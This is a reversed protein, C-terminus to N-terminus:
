QVAKIFQIIVLGLSIVKTLFVLIDSRIGEKDGSENKHIQYISYIIKILGHFAGYTGLILCIFGLINFFLIKTIFFIIAWVAICFIGFWLDDFGKINSVPKLKLLETCLGIIGIVIFIWRIVQSVAQNNFYNPVFTLVLGVTIFSFGLTLGNIMSDIKISFDVKKPKIEKAM